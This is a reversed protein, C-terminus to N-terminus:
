EFLIVDNILISHLIKSRNQSWLLNSFNCSRKVIRWLWFASFHGNPRCLWDAVQGNRHWVRQHSWLTGKLTSCWASLSDINTTESQNVRSCISDSAVSEAFSTLKQESLQNLPLVTNGGLISRMFSLWFFSFNTSTLNKGAIQLSIETCQLWMTMQYGIVSLSQVHSVNFETM